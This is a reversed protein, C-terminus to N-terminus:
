VCVSRLLVDGEEGFLVPSGSPTEEDSSEIEDSSHEAYEREDDSKHKDELSIPFTAWQEEHITRDADWEDGDGSSSVWSGEIPM